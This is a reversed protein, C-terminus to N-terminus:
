WLPTHFTDRLLICGNTRQRSPEKMSYNSHQPPHSHPLLFFVFARVEGHSMRGAGCPKSGLSINHSFCVSNYAYLSLSSATHTGELQRSLIQTGFQPPTSVPPYNFLTLLASDQMTVTNWHERPL